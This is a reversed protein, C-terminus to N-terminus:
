DCMSSTCLFYCVETDFFLHCSLHLSTCIFTYITDSNTVHYCYVFNHLYHGSGFSYPTCELVGGDPCTDSCYFIFNFFSCSLSFSFFSFLPFFSRFFLDLFLDWLKRTIFIFHQCSPNQSYIQRWKVQLSGLSWLSGDAIHQCIFHHRIDIHKTRSSIADTKTIM